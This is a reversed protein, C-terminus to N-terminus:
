TETECSLKSDDSERDTGKKNKQRRQSQKWQCLILFLQLACGQAGRTEMIMTYVHVCIFCHSFLVSTEESVGLPSETANFPSM